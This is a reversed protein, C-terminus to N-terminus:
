ASTGLDIASLMMTPLTQDTGASKGYQRLMPAVTRLTDWMLLLREGGGLSKQTVGGLVAFVAECLRSFSMIELYLGANQPLSAPLDRESIYAQQEPVLLFCRKGAEIDARIAETIYKTKGSGSPGCILKLM